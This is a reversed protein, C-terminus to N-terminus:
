GESEGFHSPSDVEIVRGEINYIRALREADAEADKRRGFLGGDVWGNVNSYGQARYKM